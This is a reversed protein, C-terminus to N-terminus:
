KIQYRMNVTVMLTLQGTKIPVSAEAAMAGGGGKGYTELFAAPPSEFFEISQIEGLSVESVDALEKAQKKADKVAEERAKEIAETNDEISFQVSNVTNAGADVAADIIDGLTDIERVTV